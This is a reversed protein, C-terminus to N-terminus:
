FLWYPVCSLGGGFPLIFVTEKIIGCFRFFQLDRPRFKKRKDVDLLVLFHVGAIKELRPM